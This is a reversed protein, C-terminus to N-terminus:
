EARDRLEGILVRAIRGISADIRAPDAAAAADGTSKVVVAPLSRSLL